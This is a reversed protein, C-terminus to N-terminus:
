SGPIADVLTVRFKLTKDALPSNSDLTINNDTKGIVKYTTTVLTEPDPLIYTQNEQLIYEIEATTLTVNVVKQPINNTRFQQDRSLLYYITVMDTDNNIDTIFVMGTTTQFGSGNVIEVGLEELYSRPIEEYLSMNYYRPVVIVKQPDYSGYGLEPEVYFGITENIKMGVINGVFGDIIGEHFVLKFPMPKYARYAEYIGEERALTENTTDFVKGDVWLTYDVVVTDGINASYDSPLISGNTEIPPAVNSTNNIFGGTTKNTEPPVPQTCGLLVITVLFLMIIYNKM